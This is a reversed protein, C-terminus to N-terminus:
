KEYKSKLFKLTELESNEKIRKEKAKRLNPLTSHLREIFIEYMKVADDFYIPHETKIKKGVYEEGDIIVSKQIYFVFCNKSCGGNLPFNNFNYADRKHIEKMFQYLEDVNSIDKEMSYSDEPYQYHGKVAYKAILKEIKEM